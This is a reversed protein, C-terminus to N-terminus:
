NVALVADRLPRMNLGKHPHQNNYDEM